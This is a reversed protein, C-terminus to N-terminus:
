FIVWHNELIFKNFPHMYIYLYSFIQPSLLEVVEGVRLTFIMGMIFGCNNGSLKWIHNILLLYESMSIQETTRNELPRIDDISSYDEISSM